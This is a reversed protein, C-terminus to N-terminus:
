NKNQPATPLSCNWKHNVANIAIEVKGNEGCNPCPNESPKNRDAITHRETFTFGCSECKYDYFIM